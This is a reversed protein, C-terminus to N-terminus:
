QLKIPRSSHLLKMLQVGPSHSTNKIYMIFLYDYPIATCNIFRSKQFINWIASGEDVRAIKVFKKFKM